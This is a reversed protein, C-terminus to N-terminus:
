GPNPDNRLALLDPILEAADKRLVAINLLASRRIAPDPDKLFQRFLPFGRKGLSPMASLVLSRVFRDPDRTFEDLREFAEPLDQSMTCLTGIAMYRVDSDAHDLLPAVINLLEPDKTRQWVGGAAYVRCRPDSDTLHRQLLSLTGPQEPWRSNVLMQLAFQSVRVDRDDALQLFLPMAAERSLDVGGSERRILGIKELLEYVWGKKQGDRSSRVQNEWVCWPIGDIKPGFISQRVFPHLCALGFILAVWLLSRCWRRQWFQTLLTKM